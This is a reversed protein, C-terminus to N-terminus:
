SLDLKMLNMKEESVLETKIFTKSTVGSVAGQKSTNISGQTSM